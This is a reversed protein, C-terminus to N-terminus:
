LNETIKGWIENALKKFGELVETFFKPNGDKKRVKNKNLAVKVATLGYSLAYEYVKKITRNIRTRLKNVLDKQETHVQTSKIKIESTIESVINEVISEKECHIKILLENNSTSVGMVKKRGKSEVKKEIKYSEALLSEWHKGFLQALIRKKRNKTFLVVIKEKSARAIAEMESEVAPMIEKGHVATKSYKHTDQHLSIASLGYGSKYKKIGTLKSKLKKDLDSVDRLTNLKDRLSSYFLFITKFLKDAPVHHSQRNKGPSKVEHKGFRLVREQQRGVYTQGPSAVYEYNWTNGGDVVDIKKFVPYKSRVKKAVIIAEEESIKGNTLYKEQEKDIAKLGEIVKSEKEPNEQSIKSKGKIKEKKDGLDLVYDWTEKGDVVQNSEVVDHKGAVEVAVAKADSEKISKAKPDVKGAQKTELDKIAEQVLKQREAESMLKVEILKKSNNYKGQKVSVKASGDEKDKINVQEIAYKRRIKKVKADLVSYTIPKKEAADGLHGIEGLARMYRQQEPLKTFDQKKKGELGKGKKIEPEKGKGGKQSKDEWKGEGKQEGAKGGGKGKPPDAMIDSTFKDPDFEVPSFKLEPVDSSGVLWAVDGGIGITPGLPYEVDGLPWDWTKDPAPSWWPSDLEVFFSGALKLFLQAAAEFHGKLWAEGVKGGQPSQSEKYEFVPTVEAYAKVGAAATVKIGAKIDHGILTVFVGAKAELGILAFASINLTGTITFNQLVSPDTSYTGIFSINRLVLPGFGANIFMGIGAFLGIQGVLPVGYGAKIEVEFLTIRKGKQEMLEVEAPPAIKGVITVQGKSDVGIDATGELWPTITAKVTGWGVVVQNKKTKKKQAKPEPPKKGEEAVTKIGLEARMTKDAKDKDAVMLTVEGSFKESNMAVTGRIIVDGATYVVKVKGSVNAIAVAIEGEGSLQGKEDRAIIFDGQALGKVDVHTNLEFVFREGELGFSGSADLYGAVNTTLESTRLTVIGNEVKNEYNAPQVKLPQVGVLGLLKLHNNIQEILSKPNPLVRKGVRLSVFGRISNPDTNLAIVPEIKKAKLPNLFDVGTFPLAQNKYIKYTADAGEKARKVQKVRMTGSALKGMNVPVEVFRKRRNEDLYTTMAANPRFATSIDVPSLVQNSEGSGAETVNNEQKQIHEDEETKSQVSNNGTESAGQQVTHTLEHALLGKGGSSGTDYKGQNFYVDSGHTFAKANLKHNMQIAEPGTHVRVNSFDAGIGSEMQQQTNIDLSQGQGKTANLRNEFDTSTNSYDSNEKRQLGQEEPPDANSEFVPKKQIGLEEKIPEEEQKQLKEQGKSEISTRQIAPHIINSNGNVPSIPENNQPSRQIKRVVNNAVRDAEQEYKDNPAGVKLKPQITNNFFPTSDMVSGNGNFFDNANDKKFFLSSGSKQKPASTTKAEATKM